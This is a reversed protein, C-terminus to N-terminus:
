DLIWERILSGLPSVQVVVVVTTLTTSIGLLWRSSRRIRATLMVYWGAGAALAAPVLGFVTIPFLVGYLLYGLIGLDLVDKPDVMAVPQDQTGRVFPYFTFGGHRAAAILLMATVLLYGVWFVMQAGIIPQVLRARAPSQAPSETVTM